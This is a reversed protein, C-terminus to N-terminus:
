WVINCYFQRNLCMWNATQYQTFSHWQIIRNKDCVSRTCFVATKGVCIRKSVDANVMRMWENLRENKNAVSPKAKVMKIGKLVRDRRNWWRLFGNSNLSTVGQPFGRIVTKMDLIELFYFAWNEDVFCSKEFLYCYFRLRKETQLQKRYLVITSNNCKMLLVTWIQVKLPWARAPRSRDNSREIQM